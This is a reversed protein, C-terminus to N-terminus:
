TQPALLTRTSCENLLHLARVLAEVDHVEIIEGCEAFSFIRPLRVVDTVSLLPTVPAANDVRHETTTQDM